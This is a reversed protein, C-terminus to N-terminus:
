CPQLKSWNHFQISLKTIQIQVATIKQCTNLIAIIIKKEIAQLEKVAMRISSQVSKNSPPQPSAKGIQQNLQQQNLQQLSSVERLENSRGACKEPIAVLIQQLKALCYDLDKVLTQYSVQASNSKAIIVYDLQRTVLQTGNQHYFRQQFLARLTRKIHNRTVANGVRKSVVLGLRTLEPQHRKYKGTYLTSKHSQVATPGISEKSHVAILQQDQQMPITALTSLNIISTQAISDTTAYLGTPSIGTTLIAKTQRKLSAQTSEINRCATTASGLQKAITQSDQTVAISRQVKAPIEETMQVTSEQLKSVASNVAVTEKTTLQTQADNFSMNAKSAACSSNSSLQMTATAFTTETMYNTNYSDSSVASTSQKEMSQSPYDMCDQTIATTQDIQKTHQQIDASQFYTAALQSNVQTTQQESIALQEPIILQVQSLQQNVRTTETNTMMGSAPQQAISQTRQQQNVTTSDIPYHKQSKAQHIVSPWREQLKALQAASFPGVAVVLTKSGVTIGQQEVQLFDARKPLSTIIEGHNFRSRIQM